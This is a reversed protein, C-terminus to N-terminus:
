SSENTTLLHELDYVEFQRYLYIDLVRSLKNNILITTTLHLHFVKKLARKFIKFYKIFFIMGLINVFPMRSISSAGLNFKLLLLDLFM